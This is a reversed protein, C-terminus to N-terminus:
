RCASKKWIVSWQQLNAHDPCVTPTGGRVNQNSHGNVGAEVAKVCQEITDRKATWISSMQFQEIHFLICFVNQRNSTTWM